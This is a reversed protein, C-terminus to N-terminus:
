RRQSQVQQHVRRVPMQRHVQRRAAFRSLRLISPSISRYKCLYYHYSVLSLIPCCCCISAYVKFCECYLKRCEAKNCNCGKVHVMV